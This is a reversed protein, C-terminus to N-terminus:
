ITASIRTDIKIGRRALAVLVRQRLDAEVAAQRGPRVRVSLQLVVGTEKLDVTGDVVPDEQADPPRSAAWERGAERLADIAESLDSRYPVTVQVVARGFDRSLNGIRAISGNPVTLLEGTFKRIQTTRLTLREVTGVEGDIRVLDGVRLVGESLLFFGALMDRILYQAGFGLALGIVGASAVIATVNVHMVQLILILATIGIVYRIASEVVPTLTRVEPPSPKATARQVLAHTVRIALWAAGVIAALLLLTEIARALREPTFVDQLVRRLAETLAM